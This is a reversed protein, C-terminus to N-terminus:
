FCIKRNLFLVLELSMFARRFIIQLLFFQSKANKMKVLLIYTITEVWRTQAHLTLLCKFVISEAM